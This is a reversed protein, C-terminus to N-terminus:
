FEVALQGTVTDGGSAGTGGDATSDDDDHAWELSLTTNDMVEVSIAASLREEPLELAVAEDTEQYAAMQDQLLQEVAQLRAKIAAIEDEIAGALSPGTGAIATAMATAMITKKM